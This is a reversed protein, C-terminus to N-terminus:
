DGCFFWGNERGTEIRRLADPLLEDNPLRAIAQRYYNIASQRAITLQEQPRTSIFQKYCDYKYDTTNGDLVQQIMKYLDDYFFALLRMTDGAFPGNPFERLYAEAARPSPVGNAAAEADAFLTTFLTYSRYSSNPNFKHAEYLLTGSYSLSDSDFLTPALGLQDYGPKIYQSSLRRDIPRQDVIRRLEGDLMVLTAVDPRGRLAQYRQYIDALSDAVQDQALVAPRMLSCAVAVAVVGLTAAHRMGM